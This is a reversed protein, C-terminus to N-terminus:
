SSQKSFKRQSEGIRYQCQRQSLLILHDCERTLTRACRTVPRLRTDATLKNTQGSGAAASDARARMQLLLARSFEISELFKPPHSTGNKKNECHGPKPSLEFNISCVWCAINESLKHWPQAIKHCSKKKYPKRRKIAHGTLKRIRRM